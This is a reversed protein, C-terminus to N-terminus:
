FRATIHGKPRQSERSERFRGNAQNPSGERGHIRFVDYASEVMHSLLCLLDCPDRNRCQVRNQALIKTDEVAAENADHVVHAAVIGNDLCRTDRVTSARLANTLISPQDSEQHPMPM